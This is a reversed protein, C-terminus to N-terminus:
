NKSKSPIIMGALEGQAVLTKDAKFVKVGMKLKQFRFYIEKGEVILKEDPYCINLFDMQSSTMAIENKLDQDKCKFIGYCALAIQAACEIIMVGPTVPKNKFHGKYFFAEKKFTYEGAIFGDENTTIDDVFLFPKKYPLYPLIDTNFDM